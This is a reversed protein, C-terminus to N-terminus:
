LDIDITDVEDSGILILYLEAWKAIAWASDPLCHKGTSGLSLIALYSFALDFLDLDFILIEMLDNRIHLGNKTSGLSSLPTWRNM